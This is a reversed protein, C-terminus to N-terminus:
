GDSMPEKSAKEQGPFDMLDQRPDEDISERSPEEKFIPTTQDEINSDATLVDEPIERMDTCTSAKCIGKRHTREDFPYNCFLVRLGSVKEIYTYNNMRCQERQMNFGIRKKSVTKETM